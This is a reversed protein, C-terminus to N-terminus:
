EDSQGPFDRPIETNQFTLRWGGAWGGETELCTEIRLDDVTPSGEELFVQYSVDPDMTFDGFGLGREPQFGTFFHDVGENWQVIAEVGPEPELFADVVEVEISPVPFEPSCVQEQSLL